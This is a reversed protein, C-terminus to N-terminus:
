FVWLNAYPGGCRKESPFENLSGDLWREPRFDEADLGWIEPSRNFGDFSVFQTWLNFLDTKCTLSYWPSVVRQGKQVHLCSVKEGDSQTIPNSLPIVNSQGAKFLGHAVVAHLRLTEKVVAQVYIM